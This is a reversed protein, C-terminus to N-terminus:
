KHQPNYGILDLVKSIWGVVKSLFDAAKNDLDSKTKEKIADLASKAGSLFLNFGVVYLLIESILPWKALIEDM